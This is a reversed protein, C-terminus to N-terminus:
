HSVVSGSIYDLNNLSAVEARVYGQAGARDTPVRRDPTCVALSKRVRFILLDNTIPIRSFTGQSAHHPPFDKVGLLAHHPGPRPGLWRGGM